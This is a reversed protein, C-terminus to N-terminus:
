RVATKNNLVNTVKPSLYLMYYWYTDEFNSKLPGKAAKIDNGYQQITKNFASLRQMCGKSITEPTMFEPISKTKVIYIALSEEWSRPLTKLNFSTYYPIYKILEPYNSDLICYALLYNYAFRNATNTEFLFKLDNLSEVHIYKTRPNFRRKEAMVPDKEILTTDSVYRQYQNVWDHCLMNQDLVKLFQQALQYQGNILNITILRKLIRPSNPMLTQAEFAWRQSESMFGLDFDLDSNPMTFSGNMNSNDLFLGNVGLLQPYNFLREPLLGLHAYARNIQFNVRFDYVSIEEAVKLVKNWQEKEAYYEIYLIKKKFPEHSQMFILYGLAATGLIQLSLYFPAKQYFRGKPLAKGKQSSAVTVPENEPTGALFLFIFLIVPLLAYYAYLQYFTSYALLEPPKVTTIRYLNELTQQFIFKYGVYPLLAGFLLFVPIAMLWTRTRHSHIVLVATSLTFVFLAPGSALYFLLFAMVPWGVLSFQPFKRNFLYFGWTFAFAWLLRISAYYPYRYDCLVMVGLVMFLSIILYGMKTKGVLRTTLYLAILGQLFAIAVILFGGLVNFSFFQAIFEALYDSIGGPYATFSTFFDVTSLFGTQQFHYHLLPEIKVATLWWLVLATLLIFLNPLNLIKFKM